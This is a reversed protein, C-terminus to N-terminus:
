SRKRRAEALTASPLEGFMNRYDKAFHSARSFGFRRAVAAVSTTEEGALLMRRAYNLRVQALFGLPSLGRAARFADSVAIAGTGTIEALAELTLPLSTNAEIYDEARRLQWRAPRPQGRELAGSYNHRSAHLFCVMVSQEYQALAQDPLDPAEIDLEAVLHDILRRLRAQEPHDFAVEAEFDIPSAVPAGIMAALKARLAAADIRLLCEAYCSANKYKAEVGAPIVAAKTPSIESTTTGFTAESSGCLVFRQKVMDIAPLVVRCASTCNSFTLDLTKFRLHSALWRFESEQRRLDFGRAGFNGVLMDRVADPARTDILPYRHLPARYSWDFLALSWLPFPGAASILPAQREGHIVSCRLVRM